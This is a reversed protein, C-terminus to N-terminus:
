RATGAALDPGGSRVPDFFGEPKPLTAVLDLNWAAVQADRFGPKLNARPDTTSPRAREPRHQAYGVAFGRRRPRHASSRRRDSAVAIATATLFRRM